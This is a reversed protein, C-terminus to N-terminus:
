VETSEVTVHWGALVVPVPLALVAPSPEACPTTELASPLTNPSTASCAAGRISALPVPVSLLTWTCGESASSAPHGRSTCSFAPLFLSTQSCTKMHGDWLVTRGGVLGTVAGGRDRWDRGAEVSPFLPCPTRPSIPRSPSAAQHHPSSPSIRFGPSQTFNQLISGTPAEDEGQVCSAVTLNLARPPFVPFNQEPFISYHWFRSRIRAKVLRGASM